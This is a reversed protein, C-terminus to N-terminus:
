QQQMETRPPTKGPSLGLTCRKLRSASGPRPAAAAARSLVSSPPVWPPHPPELELDENRPTQLPPFRPSRGHPFCGLSQPCAPDWALCQPVHFGQQAAPPFTSKPPDCSVWSTECDEWQYSCPCLLPTENVAMSAEKIFFLTDTSMRRCCPDGRTSPVTLWGRENPLVADSPSRECMRVKFIDPPAWQRLM